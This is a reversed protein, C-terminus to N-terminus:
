YCPNGRMFKVIIYGALSKRFVKKVLKRTAYVVVIACEVVFVAISSVLFACFIVFGAELHKLTLVQPGIEPIKRDIDRPALTLETTYISGLIGAEFLQSAKAFVVDKMPGFSMFGVYAVGVDEKAEVVSSSGSRYYWIPVGKRVSQQAIVALHNEPEVVLKLNEFTSEGVETFNSDKGPYSCNIRFCFYFIV